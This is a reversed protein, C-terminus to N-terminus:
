LASSCAGLVIEQFKAGRSNESKSSISAWHRCEKKGCTELTHMENVREKQEARTSWGTNQLYKQSVEPKSRAQQQWRLTGKPTMHSSYLIFRLIGAKWKKCAAQGGGGRRKGNRAKTCRM